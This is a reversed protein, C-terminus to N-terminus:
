VRDFEENSEADSYFELKEWMRGTTGYKHDNKTVIMLLICVACYSHIVTKENWNGEENFEGSFPFL